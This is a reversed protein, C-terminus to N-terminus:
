SRDIRAKIDADLELMRQAVKEIESDSSVDSVKITEVFKGDKYINYANEGENANAYHYEANDYPHVGSINYTNNFQSARHSNITHTVSFKQGDIYFTGFDYVEDPYDYRRYKGEEDNHYDYNKDHIDKKWEISETVSEVLKGTKMIGDVFEKPTLPNLVLLNKYVEDFYKLEESPIRQKVLRQLENYLEESYFDYDENLKGQLALKTAETLNLKNDKFLM